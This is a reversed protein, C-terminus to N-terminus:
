GGGGRNTCVHQWGGHHACVGSARRCTSPATTPGTLHLPTHSLCSSAVGVVPRGEYVLAPIDEDREQALEVLMQAHQHLLVAYYFCMHTVKLPGVPSLVAALDYLSMAILVMWTTWAPIWTFIYATVVGTVVLYGQKLTIPVALYFLSLVGVVAFNYLVFLFSFVDLHAHLRQILLAAIVGTLAFFISFGAFAMYGYIFRTYGHKFLLVLVFTMGAVIAVFILANVM